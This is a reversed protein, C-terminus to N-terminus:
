NKGLYYLISFEYFFESYQKRETLKGEGFHLRTNSKQQYYCTIFSKNNCTPSMVKILMVYNVEM